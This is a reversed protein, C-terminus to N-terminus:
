TAVDRLHDLGARLLRSVHMQSIGVRDAIEQQTMGADYRLVFIRREREDLCELLHDVVARDCAPGAPESGEDLLDPRSSGELSNPRFCSGIGMAELVDGASEGLDEAIEAPAPAHARRQELRRRSGEVERRLEKLRRPVRIAWGRDRFHRKIEGLITPVAFSSFAVGRDPDFRDVAKILGVVAVQRLDDPEIGRGAYRGAMAYALGLHDIVLEDRLRPDRSTQWRRFADLDDPASTTPRDVDRPDATISRPSTHAGPRCSSM